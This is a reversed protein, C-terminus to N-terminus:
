DLQEMFGSTLEADKLESISGASGQRHDVLNGSMNKGVQHQKEQRQLQRQLRQSAASHPREQNMYYRLPPQLEKGGGPPVCDFGQSRSAEELFRLHQAQSERHVHEALSKETAHSTTIGSGKRVKARNRTVSESISYESEKLFGCMRADLRTIAPCARAVIEFAEGVITGLENNSCDIELDSFKTHGSALVEALSMGAEPGFGCGSVNLYKLRDYRLLLASLHNAGTDGLNNLRLCLNTLRNPYEAPRAALLGHVIGAVGEHGIGNGDLRLESASGGQALYAAVALCGEDGLKCYSLDIVEVGCNIALGQLIAAARPQDLNSRTLSFKKLHKLNALGRGLKKSDEVSFEFACWDIGDSKYIVGINLSIERLKPLEPLIVDMPIHHTDPPVPMAAYPVAEVEHTEAEEGELDSASAAESEQAADRVVGCRTPRLQRLKLQQVYPAVLQLLHVCREREGDFFDPQMRELYDITHRQCYLQLWSDLGDPSEKGPYNMRWRHEAARQWYYECDGIKKMAMEFPLDLPLLELLRQKDEPGPLGDLPVLNGEEGDGDNYHLSAEAWGAAIIRLSLEVLRPVEREDWSEIECRLSRSLEGRLLQTEESCRFAEFTTSPVTHPIRM